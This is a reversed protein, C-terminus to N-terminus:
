TFVLAVADFFDYSLSFSVLQISSMVGMREGVNGHESVYM